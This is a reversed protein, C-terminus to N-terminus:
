AFGSSQATCIGDVHQAQDHTCYCVGAETPAYWVCPCTTPRNTDHDLQMAQEYARIVAIADLVEQIPDAAAFLDPNDLQYQKAAEYETRTPM